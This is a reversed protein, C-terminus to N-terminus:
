GSKRRFTRKSAAPGHGHVHGGKGGGGDHRGSSQANAQKRELAERFRRKVDDESEGPSSNESM